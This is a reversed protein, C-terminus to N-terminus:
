IQRVYFASRPETEGNVYVAKLVDFQLLIMSDSTSCYM